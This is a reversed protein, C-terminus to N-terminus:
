HLEPDDGTAPIFNAFVTACSCASRQLCLFLPFFWFYGGGATGSFLPKRLRNGALTTM